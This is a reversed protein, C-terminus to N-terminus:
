LDHAPCCCFSLSLSVMTAVIRLDNSVKVLVPIIWATNDDKNSFYDLTLNYAASEHRYAASSFSILLRNLILCVVATTSRVQRLTEM